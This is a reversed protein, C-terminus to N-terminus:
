LLKGDIQSIARAHYIECRNKIIPYKIYIILLEKHLATKFVSTDMLDAINVPKQEHKLIEMIDDNNLIKTYYVDIKTLTIADILNQLDLTLLRLRHKRLPLDQNIFVNKFDDSLSEIEKFLKYNIIFQKNNNEILEDIKNLIKIFDIQDPTGALWKWV